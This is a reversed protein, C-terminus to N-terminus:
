VFSIEDLLLHVDVLIIEGGGRLDLVTHDGKFSISVDAKDPLDIMDQAANFDDIRDHGDRLGFVFTDAGAGGKMRDDGRGGILTDDGGGGNLRDVDGDGRLTDAGGLGFLHDRGSNGILTDSGVGGNLFDNGGKGILTDNGDLGTLNDGSTGGIIKTDGSLFHRGRGGFLGGSYDVLGPDFFASLDKVTLTKKGNINFFEIKTAEYLWTHDVATIKVKEANRSEFSSFYTITTKEGKQDGFIPIGLILFDFFDSTDFQLKFASTAKIVAM